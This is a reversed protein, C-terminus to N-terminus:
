TIFVPFSSSQHARIQICIDIRYIHAFWSVILLAPLTRGGIKFSSCLSWRSGWWRVLPRKAWSMSWEASIPRLIRQCIGNTPRVRENRSRCKRERTVWDLCFLFLYFLILFIFRDAAIWHQYFERFFVPYIRGSFTWNSGLRVDSSDVTSRTTTTTRWDIARIRRM